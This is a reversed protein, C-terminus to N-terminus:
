TSASALPRLCFTTVSRAYNAVLLFSDGSIGFIYMIAIIGFIYM